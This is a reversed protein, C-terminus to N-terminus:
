RIINDNLTYVKGPKIRELPTIFLDEGPMIGEDLLIDKITNLAVDPDNNENNRHCLFVNRM